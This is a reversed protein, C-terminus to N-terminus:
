YLVTLIAYYIIIPGCLMFCLLVKFKCPPLKGSDVDGKKIRFMQYRLDNVDCLATQSGMVVIKKDKTTKCLPWLLWRTM